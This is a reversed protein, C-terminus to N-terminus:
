VYFLGFRVFNASRRAIHLVDINVRFNILVQPRLALIALYTAM